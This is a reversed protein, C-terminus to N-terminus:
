INSKIGSSDKNLILIDKCIRVQEEANEVTEKRNVIEAQPSYFDTKVEWKKKGGSKLEYDRGYRSDDVDKPGCNVKEEKADENSRDHPEDPLNFRVSTPSLARQRPGSSSDYKRGLFGSMDSETEGFSFEKVNKFQNRQDSVDQTDNSTAGNNKGSDDYSNLFLFSDTSATSMDDNTNNNRTDTKLTDGDRPTSTMFDDTPTERENQIIEEATRLVNLASSTLM